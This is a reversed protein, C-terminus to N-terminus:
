RENRKRTVEAKECAWLLNSLIEIQASAEKHKEVEHKISDMSTSINKIVLFSDRQKEQLRKVQKLAQKLFQEADYNEVDFNKIM